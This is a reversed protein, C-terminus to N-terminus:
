PAALCYAEVIFTKDSGSLNNGRGQAGNGVIHAYNTYMAPGFASWSTGVGIVRENAACSASVFGSNGTPIVVSGTRVNIPALNPGRVAGNAIKPAPYNGSLDGGAAGSPTASGATAAYNAGDAVKAHDATPVTGLTSLNVKAGTVAGNAIKATSVAGDKLKAPGVSLNRLKPNSVAGDKLQKEGVSNKPLSFAAYSTGGLAVVLAIVAVVLAPSPRRLRFMSM